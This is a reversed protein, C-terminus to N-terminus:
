IIQLIWSWQRSKILLCMFLWIDSCENMYSSQFITMWFFFICNKIWIFNPFRALITDRKRVPTKIKSIFNLIGLAREGLKELPIWSMQLIRTRILKLAWKYLLFTIAFSYLSFTCASRISWWFMSSLLLKNLVLLPKQLFFLLIYSLVYGFM